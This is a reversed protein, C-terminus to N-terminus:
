GSQPKSGIGEVRQDTQECLQEWEHDTLELSAEDMLRQYCPLDKVYAVLIRRVRSRVASLERLPLVVCAADDTDVVGRM